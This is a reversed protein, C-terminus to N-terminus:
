NRILEFVEADLFQQVRDRREERMMWPVKVAHERRM